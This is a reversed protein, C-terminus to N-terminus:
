TMGMGHTREHFGSGNIVVLKTNWGTTFQDRITRWVVQFVM